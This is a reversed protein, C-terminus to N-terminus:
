CYVTVLTLITLQLVFLTRMLNVTEISSPPRLVPIGTNNVVLTLTLTLNRSGLEISGLGAISFYVLGLNSLIFLKFSMVVIEKELFVFLDIVYSTNTYITVKLWNEAVNCSGFKYPSFLESLYLWCVVHVRGGESRWYPNYSADTCIM